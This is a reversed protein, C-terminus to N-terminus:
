IKKQGMDNVSQYDKEKDTKKEKIQEINNREIEDNIKKM